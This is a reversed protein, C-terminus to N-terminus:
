GSLSSASNWGSDANPITLWSRVAAAVRQGLKPKELFHPRRVPHAPRPIAVPEAVADIVAPTAHARDIRWTRCEVHHFELARDVRQWLDRNKIPV